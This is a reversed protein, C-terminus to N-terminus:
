GFYDILDSLYKQILTADNVNVTGSYNVDALLYGDGTITSLGSVHKQILTVDKATVNGDMDADGLEGFTPEWYAYMTIADGDNVGYIYSYNTETSYICINDTFMKRGYDSPKQASNCWIYDGMSMTYYIEGNANKAYWHDFVFRNKTFTNVRLYTPVGYQILMNPMSGVGSNGNFSITFKIDIWQAYMTVIDNNISTTNFVVQEDSYLYKDYGDPEQGEIYWGKNSGNTYYWKNDSQRKAYWGKFPLGGNTFVNKNLPTDNYYMVNTNGMSGTGGNANYRVTYFKVGNLSKYANLRGRTKVQLDGVVDVGNLIYYKMAKASMQPYKSKLLAAVGTVHPTAMSTGALSAYTSNKYTSYIAVGPATLDVHTTSYNSDSALVDSRNTNAVSIINDLDFCSPYSNSSINTGENGAACVILGGYLSIAREVASDYEDTSLSINLIPINNLWAYNIADSITSSNAEDVDTCTKLSVLDVNWCVGSVGIGNNGQAGIIGAVHTGHGDSDTLPSNGGTFDKSLTRNVRNTLDPHSAQIGSDIVGVKVTSSGTAINWANSLELKSVAWQTTTSCDNPLVNLKYRFNPSAILVDSRKELIKICELVNSKSSNELKLELFAYYENENIMRPVFKSQRQEQIRDAILQTANRVSKVSIESFDEKTYKKLKKSTENNLVVVISDPEFDSDITTRCIIKEDLSAEAMIEKLAPDIKDTSNVVPKVVDDETIEMNGVAGIPSLAGLVIMLVALFVSTLSCITKNKRM